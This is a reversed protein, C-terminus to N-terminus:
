IGKRRAIRGALVLVAGMGLAIGQVFGLLFGWPRPMTSWRMILSAVVAATSGLTLFSGLAIKQRTNM